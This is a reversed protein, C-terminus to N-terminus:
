LMPGALRPRGRLEGIGCDRLRDDSILHGLHSLTSTLLSVSATALTWFSTSFGQSTWPFLLPATHVCETFLHTLDQVGQSCLPCSRTTFAQQYKNVGLPLLGLRLRLWGQAVGWPLSHLFYDQGEFMCQRYYTSIKKSPCSRERPDM